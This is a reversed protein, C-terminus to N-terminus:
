SSKGIVDVVNSVAWLPIFYGQANKDVLRSKKLKSLYERCSKLPVMCEAQLIGPAAEASANPLNLRVMAQRALLSVLIRNQHSLQLFAPKTIVSGERTFGVLGTLAKRLLVDVAQENEEVLLSELENTKGTEDVM